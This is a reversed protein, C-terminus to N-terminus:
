RAEKYEVKAGPPQGALDTTHDVTVLTLSSRIGESCAAFVSFQLPSTKM